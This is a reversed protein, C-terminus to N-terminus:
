HSWTKLLFNSRPDERIFLLNFTLSEKCHNRYLTYALDNNSTETKCLVKRDISNVYHLMRYFTFYVHDNYNSLMSDKRQDKHRSKNTDSGKVSALLLHRLCSTGWLSPRSRHDVLKDETTFVTKVSPSCNNDGQRDDVPLCPFSLPM